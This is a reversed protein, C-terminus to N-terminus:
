CVVVFCQFLALFACARPEQLAICERCPFRLSVGEKPEIAYWSTALGDEAGGDNLMKVTKADLWQEVEIEVESIGLLLSQSANDEGKNALKVM